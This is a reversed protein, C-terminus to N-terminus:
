NSWKSSFEEALNKIKPLNHVLYLIKKNYPVSFLSIPKNGSENISPNIKKNLILWATFANVSPVRVGVAEFFHDEETMKKAKEAKNKDYDTFFEKFKM